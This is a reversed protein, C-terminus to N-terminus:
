RPAGVTDALAREVLLVLHPGVPDDVVLVLQDLDPAGAVLAGLDDGVREAPLDGRLSGLERDVEGPEEGREWASGASLGRWTAASDVDACEWGVGPWAAARAPRRRCRYSTARTAM